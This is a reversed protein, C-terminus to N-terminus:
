RAGLEQPTKGTAASLFEYTYYNPFLTGSVDKKALGVEHEFRAMNEYMKQDLRYDYVYHAISIDVIADPLNSFRKIMNRWRVRDNMLVQQSKFLVKLVKTVTKPYRKAFDKNVAFISNWGGIIPNDEINIPPFYGKGEAISKAGHPDWIAWGDIDGKYFAAEFDPPNPINVTKVSEWPIGALKLSTILKMWAIGGQAVGIRKGQLDKWSNVEVGKRMILYDGGRSFGSIVLLSKVGESVAMPTEQPGYIGFDVAGTAIGVRTDPYRMFKVVEINLGEEKAV